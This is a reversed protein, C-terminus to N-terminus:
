VNRLEKVTAGVHLSYVPCRARIEFQWIDAKFGSPLRVPKGNRPVDEDYVVRRDAFVTFQVKKDVPLIGSGWPDDSYRSEDWYISYAGFNEQFDYQFEKSRWRIPMLEDSPTDWRLVEGDRLLFVEGSWFDVCVGRIDEFNSFETLAVDLSTPDLFFGSRVAPLPPMRLALYGNQYRM